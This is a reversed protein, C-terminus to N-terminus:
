RDVQGTLWGKRIKLQEPTADPMEEIQWQGSEARLLKLGAWSLAADYDMDDTGGVHQAFWAHMDTGAAASVAQEVDDETYGRGQLYYSAKPADWV